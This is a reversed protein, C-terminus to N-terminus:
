EMPLNLGFEKLWWERNEANDIVRSGLDEVSSNSIISFASRIKSLWSLSAQLEEWTISHKEDNIEWHLAAPMHERAASIAILGHCIGTRMDLFVQLKARLTKALQPRLSTAPQGANVTGEWVRLVAAIGHASKPVCGHASIVEERASREIASWLLLLSGVSGSIKEFTVDM